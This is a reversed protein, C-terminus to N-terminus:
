LELKSPYGVTYDYAVVEDTTKLEDVAAKHSATTDYCQSAYIEVAYLMQRGDTISMAFGVTGAWLKTETKGMIEEANFRAALGTRTEKDLWLPVGRYSFENVASSSDYATIAKVMEDKAFRLVEEETFMVGCIDQLDDIIQKIESQPIFRSGLASGLADLTVDEIVISEQNDGLNFSVVLVDKPNKGYIHTKIIHNSVEMKYLSNFFLTLHQALAFM